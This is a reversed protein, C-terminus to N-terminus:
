AFYFAAGYEVQFDFVQSLPRQQALCLMVRIVGAHTVVLCKSAEQDGERLASAQHLVRNKFDELTEGGPPSHAAFDDAWADFLGADQQRIGDWTRNEWEGFYIERWGANVEHSLGLNAAIEAAPISCRSLDSSVIKQPAFIAAINQMLSITDAASPHLAADTQGLCRGAYEPSIPPHRMLCLTM